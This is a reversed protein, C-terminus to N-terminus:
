CVGAAMVEEIAEAAQPTLREVEWAEHLGAFAADRTLVGVVRGDELVPIARLDQELMLRAAEWIPMDPLACVGTEEMWNKVIM